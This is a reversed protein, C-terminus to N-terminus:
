RDFRGAADWGLRYEVSLADSTSASNWFPHDEYRVGAEYYDPMRLPICSSLLLATVPVLLLDFHKM